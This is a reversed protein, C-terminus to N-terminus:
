KPQLIGRSIIGYKRRPTAGNLVKKDSDVAVSLRVRRVMAPCSGELPAPIV